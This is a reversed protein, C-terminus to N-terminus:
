KKAILKPANKNPAEPLRRAPADGRDTTGALPTLKSIVNRLHEQQVKAYIQTTALDKHGLLDAIDALNVGAMRLHAGFSHRLAHVTAPRIGARRCVKKLRDLIYRDIHGESNAFVLLDSTRRDYQELLLERLTPSIPITREDTKPQWEFEPKAQIFIVGLEFNVDAWTLHEAEGKRMGTLLIGMFLRREDDDCAAFFQALEEKTMFKPLARKPVRFREVPAVPNLFLYNRKISWLCFTFLVRLEYNITPLGVSRRVGHRGLWGFKAREKPTGEPRRGVAQRRLAEDRAREDSTTPVEEIEGAARLRKYEELHLPRLQRLRHVDPYYKTLFCEHFTKLVRMYRKVTTVRRNTKLYQHYKGIVAPVSDDSPAGGHLAVQREFQKLAEEAEERTQGVTFRQRDSGTGHTLEWVVNGSVLRRKTITAM